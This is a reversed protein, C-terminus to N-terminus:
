LYGRLASFRERLAAMENKLTKTDMHTWAARKEAPRFAACHLPFGDQSGAAAPDRRRRITWDTEQTLSGCPNCNERL